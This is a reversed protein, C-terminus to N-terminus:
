TSSSPKSRFPATDFALASRHADGPAAEENPLLVYAGGDTIWSSVYPPRIYYSRIDANTMKPAYLSLQLIDCWGWIPISPTRSTTISSPIRSLTGTQLAQTFLPACSKRSAADATSTVPNKAPARTGSRWTATWTSSGPVPRTCIGTTKMRRTM